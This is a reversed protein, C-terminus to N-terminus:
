RILSISLLLFSSNLVTFLLSPSKPPQPESQPWSGRNFNGHNTQQPLYQPAEFMTGGGNNNQYHSPMYSSPPYNNEERACAWSASKEYSDIQSSNEDEEDGECVFSRTSTGLVPMSRAKNKLNYMENPSTTSSNMDEYSSQQNHNWEM